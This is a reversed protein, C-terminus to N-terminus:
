SGLRNRAAAAVRVIPAHHLQECEVWGIGDVFELGRESPRDVAFGDPIGDEVDVCRPQPDILGPCAPDGVFPVPPRHARLRREQRRADALQGHRGRREGEHILAREIEVRRDGRHQGPIYELTQRDRAALVRDRADTGPHQQGIAGAQRVVVIVLDMGGDVTGRAHGLQHQRFRLPPPGAVLQEVVDALVVCRECRGALPEEVRVEVPVQESQDDFAHDPSGEVRDDTFPDQFRQGHRVRPIVDELGAGVVRGVIASAKTPALVDCPCRREREVLGSTPSAVVAASRPLSM